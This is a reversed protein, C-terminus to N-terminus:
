THHQATCIVIGDASTVVAPGVAKLVVDVEEGVAGRINEILASPKNINESPNTHSSLKTLM